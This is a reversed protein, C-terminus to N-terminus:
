GSAARLRALWAYGGDGFAVHWEDWTGEGTSLQLRGIIRFPRFTKSGRSAM